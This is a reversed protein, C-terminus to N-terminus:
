TDFFAWSSREKNLSSNPFVQTTGDKDWERDWVKDWEKIGTRDKAEVRTGIRNLNNVGSSSLNDGNTEVKTKIEGATAM